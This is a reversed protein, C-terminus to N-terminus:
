RRRRSCCNIRMRDNVRVLAGRKTLRKAVVGLLAAGKTNGPKVLKMTRKGGVRVRVSGFLPAKGCKTANRLVSLIGSTYSSPPAFRFHLATRQGPGRLQRLHGLRSRQKQTRGSGVKTGCEEVCRRARHVRRRRGRCTGRCTM